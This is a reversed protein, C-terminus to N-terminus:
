LGSPVFLCFLISAFSIKATTFYSLCNCIFGGWFEGIPNLGMVEVVSTCHQVSQAIFGPWFCTLHSNLKYGNYSSFSMIHRHYLDRCLDRESRNKIQLASM